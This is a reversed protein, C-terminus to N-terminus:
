IATTADVLVPPIDKFAVVDRNFEGFRALEVKHERDWIVSQEPLQIKELMKPDPLGNSLQTFGAIAVGAGVIGLVLLATFLVLGMRAAGGIGKRRRSARPSPTSSSTM